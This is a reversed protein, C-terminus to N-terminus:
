EVGAVVVDGEVAIASVNAELTGLEDVSLAQAGTIRLDGGVEALGFIGSYDVLAPHDDIVLDGAVADLSALDEVTSLAKNTSLELADLAVVGSLIKLDVLAPNEAILVDADDLVTAGITSLLDANQSIEISGVVDFPFGDLTELGDLGSLTLDGGALDIPAHDLAELQPLDMLAVSGASELRPLTGELSFVAIDELNLGQNLVKVRPMWLRELAPAKTVSLSDLMKLAPMSVSHLGKMSDIELDGAAVLRPMNFRKVGPLGEIQLTGGITVICRLAELSTVKADASIIVDGTVFEVRSPIESLDTLDGFHTTGPFVGNQDSGCDEARVPSKVEIGKETEVGDLGGAAIGESPDYEFGGSSFGPEYVLSEREASQATAGEKTDGTETEADVCAVACLTLGAMLFENRLM